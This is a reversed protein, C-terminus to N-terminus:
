RRGICGVGRKSEGSLFVHLSLLVTHIDCINGWVIGLLLLRMM